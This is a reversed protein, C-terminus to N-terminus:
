QFVPLFFVLCFLTIYVFYYFFCPCNLVSFVAEGAEFRKQPLIELPPLFEWM